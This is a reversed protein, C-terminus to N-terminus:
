IITENQYQNNEKELLTTVRVKGTLLDEMLGQKIRSLKDRYATEKEIVADVQSIVSAIREQEPLPPLPIVVYIINKRNLSPVGTAENLTEFNFSSLFFYLYKTNIKTQLYFATDIVWFKQEAPVYYVINITGKRPIIIAEGISLFKRTKSIVGSTGFILSDGKDDYNNERLGAGYYIKGIERLKKVEWDSPIRGLPSDKFKHTKESRVEWNKDIGKTLLEQMLGQKIRKYKEIIADTKEITNDVTELIEAIKEQEEQNEPFLILIRQLDENSISEQTTGEALLDKQKNFYTSILFQFVYKSYIKTELLAFGTSLIYNKELSEDIYLVKLANKMRAFALRNKKPQMNARSPRNFYDIVDEINIIKTDQVSNTSLYNKTNSFFEIGSGIISFYEKEGLKVKKWGAPIKQLDKTM